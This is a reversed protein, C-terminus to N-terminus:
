QEETPSATGNGARSPQTGRLHDNLDHLEAAVALTAEVQARAICHEAFAEKTLYPLSPLSANLAEKAREVYPRSLAM